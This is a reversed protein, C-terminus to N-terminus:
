DIKVGVEKVLRKYLAQDARIQEAFQEATGAVINAGLSPVKSEVEPSRLARVTEANLRTILGAPTGGPAFFGVTTVALFGPFGSEAVTPADPMLPSRQATGSAIIRLKGAKVHPLVSPLAVFMMSVDNTLLGPIAQVNSKYPIHTLTVGAMLGLQAGALQHVSANGPSGYNIGPRAKAAAILEQVSQVNLAPNVVLFLPGHVAQTVPLLDRNPDYPLKAHIFPNLAYHGIDGVFLTHGDPEARAVSEAALIGSAGPKNEVIVQQGLTDSMKQAVLRALVDPLGGTLYPVVLKIPKSPFTQALAAVPLAMAMALIALRRALPRLYVM